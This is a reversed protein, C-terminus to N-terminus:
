YTKLRRQSPSRIAWSCTSTLHAIAVLRFGPRVRTAVTRLKGGTTKSKASFSGRFRAAPIALESEEIGALAFATSALCGSCLGALDRRRREAHPRPVQPEPGLLGGAESDARARKRPRSPPNLSSELGLAAATRKVWSEAGSSTRCPTAGAGSWAAADLATLAVGAPEVM